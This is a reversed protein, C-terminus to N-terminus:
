IDFIPLDTKRLLPELVFFDGFLHAPIVLFGADFLMAVAGNYAKAAIQLPEFFCPSLSTELPQESGHLRSLDLNLLLIKGQNDALEIGGVLLPRSKNLALWGQFAREPPLEPFLMCCEFTIGVGEFKEPLTASLQQAQLFLFTQATKLGALLCHLSPNTKCFSLAPKRYEQHPNNNLLCLPKGTNNCLVIPSFATNPDFFPETHVTEMERAQTQPRFRENKKNRETHKSM